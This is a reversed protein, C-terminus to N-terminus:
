VQCSIRLIAAESRHQTGHNVVHVMLHWLVDKIPLGKTTKYQVTRNLDDDTLSAIFERLADAEQEWRDALAEFTPLDSESLLSTPSDGQWRRRWTVEAALTHVLAGRLSGQPVPAAATYQEPSVQAAQRLVRANAWDTYRFLAEIDAKNM